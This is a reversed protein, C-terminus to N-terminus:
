SVPCKTGELMLRVPPVAVAGDGNKAPKIQDGAAEQRGTEYGILSVIVTVNMLKRECLDPHNEDGQGSYSHFRFTGSFRGNRDSVLESPGLYNTM